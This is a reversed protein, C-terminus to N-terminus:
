AVSLAQVAPQPSISAESADFLQLAVGVRQSPTFDVASFYDALEDYSLEILWIDGEVTAGEPLRDLRYMRDLVPYSAHSPTRMPRIARADPGPKLKVAVKRSAWVGVVADNVPPDSCAVLRM